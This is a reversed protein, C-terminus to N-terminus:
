MVPSHGGDVNIATGTIYAPDTTANYVGAPKSVGGLVLVAVTNTEGGAFNLSLVGNTGLTANTNVTVTSAAALSPIDLVLTGNSITTNGTYSNTTIELLGAGTKVLGGSGTANSITLSSDATTVDFVCSSGGLTVRALPLASTTTPASNQLTGSNFTVTQVNESDGNMDVTGGGLVLTVSAGMQTGTPQAMVLTGNTNVTNLNGNNALGSAKDFIVTGGNITVVLANNGVGGAMDWTGSGNVIVGQGNNGNLAGETRLTSGGLTLTAGSAVTPKL